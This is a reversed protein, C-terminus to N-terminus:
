TGNPMGSDYWDGRKSRTLSLKAVHCQATSSIEVVNWRSLDCLKSTPRPQLVIQAVLTSNVFACHDSCLQASSEATVLVRSHPM